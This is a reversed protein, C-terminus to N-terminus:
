AAIAVLERFIPAYKSAVFEGPAVEVMVAGDDTRVYENGLLVATKAAMPQVPKLKRIQIQGQERADIVRLLSVEFPSALGTILYTV